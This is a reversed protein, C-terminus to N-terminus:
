RSLLVDVESLVALLQNEGDAASLVVASPLVAVDEVEVEFRLEGPEGGVVVVRWADPTSGARASFVSSGVAPRFGEVGEGQVELWVAGLSAPAQVRGQITGPGSPADSCGAALLLFLLFSALARM